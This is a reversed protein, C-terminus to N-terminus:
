LVHTKIDTICIMVIILISIENPYYDTDYCVLLENSPNMVNGRPGVVFLSVQFVFFM